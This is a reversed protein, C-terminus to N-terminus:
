RKRRIVLLSSAALLTLTTPEPVLTPGAEFYVEGEDWHGDWDNVFDDLSECFQLHMVGTPYVQDTILFDDTYDFMGGSSYSGNGSVDAGYGPEIGVGVFSDPIATMILDMESLYSPFDAYLAVDWGVASVTVSTGSPLGLAAAIDWTVRENDPDTYLDVSFHGSVDLAVVAEPGAHPVFTGPESQSGKSPHSDLVTFIPAAMTTTSFLALTGLAVVSRIHM